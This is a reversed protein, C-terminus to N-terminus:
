KKEIRIVIFFSYLNRRPSWFSPPGTDTKTSGPLFEGLSRAGGHRRSQDDPEIYCEQQQPRILFFRTSTQKVICLLTHNRAKMCDSQKYEDM